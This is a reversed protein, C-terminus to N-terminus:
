YPIWLSPFGNEDNVKLIDKNFYRCIFVESNHMSLDKPIPEIDEVFVRINAVNNKNRPPKYLNGFIVDNQM